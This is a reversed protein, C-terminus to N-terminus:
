CEKGVRREESREPTTKLLKSSNIAIASEQNEVSTSTKIIDEKEKLLKALKDDIEKVKESTLNYMKTKARAYQPDMQDYQRQLLAKEDNLSKIQTTILTDREVNANVSISSKTYLGSLYGYHGISAVFVLCVVFAVLIGKTLRDLLKTHMVVSAISFKAIELGSLAVIMIEKGHPFLTSYGSVTMFGSICALIVAVITIVLPGIVKSEFDVVAKHEIDHIVRDEIKKIDDENLHIENRNAMVPEEKFEVIPPEEQKVIIPVEVIVPEEIHESLPSYEELEKIYKSRILSDLYDKTFLSSDIIKDEEFRKGRTDPDASIFDKLVQCKM